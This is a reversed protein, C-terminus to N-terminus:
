YVTCSLHRHPCHCATRRNGFQACGCARQGSANSLFRSSISFIHANLSPKPSNYCLSIHVIIYIIFYKGISLKEAKSLPPRSKDKRKHSWIAHRIDGGSGYEYLGSNGCFGWIDLVHPSKTLRDTAVADRRHRDYNRHTYDHQYRLTKLAVDTPPLFGVEVHWIDRFYGNAILKGGELLISFAYEYLTNCSPFSMMQWPYQAKCDFNEFTEKKGPGKYKGQSRHATTGNLFRQPNSDLGIINGLHVRDVKDYDSNRLIVYRPQSQYSSSQKTMTSVDGFSLGSFIFLRLALALFLLGATTRSSQKVYVSANYWLATMQIWGQRCHRVISSFSLPRAIETSGKDSGQFRKGEAECSSSAEIIRAGPSRRVRRFNAM